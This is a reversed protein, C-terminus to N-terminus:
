REPQFNNLATLLRQNQEQTGVTIRLMNQLPDATFHRVAIGLEAFWANLQQAYSSIMLIFNTTSSYIKEIWPSEQLQSALKERENLIYTINHTFWTKDTLAHQALEIVASSLTYPPLVNQIAKILQPQAIIAGLRLGALGYAKSLTRLVILNDFSALLTTASSTQAFEIYAEDVVVVAKSRFYLCLDAISALDLLNGTPNNPRCIMILKCNPQWLSFMKEISWNFNNNAELPCNIIEAQQLRAYFAYMPFTPSCQMFSDRGACLFLRMLLDIGDDSGRTLVLEEDSVQYYTAIQQQLRQVERADPYHNLPVQRLSAPSWPLENAHLRCSLEDGGPAYGQLSKLDPRILELVSM